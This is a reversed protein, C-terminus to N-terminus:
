IPKLRCSESVWVTVYVYGQCMSAALKCRFSAPSRTKGRGELRELASTNGAAKVKASM